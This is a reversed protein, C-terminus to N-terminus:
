LYKMKVNSLSLNMLPLKTSVTLFPNMYLASKKFLSLDTILFSKLTLWSPM